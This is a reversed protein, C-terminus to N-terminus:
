VSAIVAFKMPFMVDASGGAANAPSGTGVEGPSKYNKFSHRYYPFHCRLKM